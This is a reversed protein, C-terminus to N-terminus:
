PEDISMFNDYKFLLVDLNKGIENLHESMLPKKSNHSCCLVWTKKKRLNIKVFLGEITM